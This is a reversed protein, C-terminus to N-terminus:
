IVKENLNKYLKKIGRSRSAAVAGQPETDEDCQQVGENEKQELAVPNTGPTM